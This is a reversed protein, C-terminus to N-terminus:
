VSYFSCFLILSEPIYWAIHSKYDIAILKIQKNIFIYYLYQM